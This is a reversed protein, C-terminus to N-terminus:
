TAVEFRIRVGPALPTPPDCTPDFLALATTGILAWGGPMEAPYIGAMDAVIAVSGAPVTARPTALRPLGRLDPPLGALYPFARGFGLMVVTYTAAAHAAVVEARTRGFHDAVRDLDAGDYVVPVTIERDRRFETSVLPVTSVRALVRGPDVDGPVLVSGWGARGGLARVVAPVYAPEAITLLVGHGGYREAGVVVDGVVTPASM